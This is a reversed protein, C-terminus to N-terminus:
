FRFVLKGYVGRDVETAVGIFEGRGEPHRDDLLNYGGICAELTESPKWGLRVDVREYGPIDWAPLSNVAYLSVDFELDWPLDLYSRIKFQQEPSQGEQEENVPDGSTPDLHLQIDLASYSASVEWYDTIRVNSSLEAGYTEGDMKNAAIVPIKIYSPPGAMFRLERYQPEYSRLGDYENYFLALDFSLANSVQVRQGIEFGLLTESEFDDDGRGDVYYPPFTPNSPNPDMPNPQNFLNLGVLHHDARSPTRVARSVSAWTTYRPHPTFLLRASPQYELHTFDNYEFKSGFTFKLLDEIIVHSDQIFASFLDLAREDPEFEFYLGRAFDDTHRRYGLGWIIENQSFPSFRHQYDLDFVEYQADVVLDQKREFHEFYTQLEMDSTDSFRKKWRFLLDGGKTDANLLAAPHRYGLGPTFVVSPFEASENSDGEYFDGQFTLDDEATIGWDMRFGGQQFSWDDFADKDSADKFDDIDKYMGYVRYFVNEDIAGGYRFSTGSANTGVTGTTLVGQTDKAHKTIINIVGNVANAGWLTAGPGRIVEIRDIDELLYNQAEWFVGSFVQNYVSRGDVLILLKNSFESGFGRSSVIWINANMNAVFLGPVMRLLEPISTAGSRRIDEKTIVYIASAAQSLKEEKKSVSTVVVDLASLEELDLDAIEELDIDDSSQTLDEAFSGNSCFCFLLLLLGVLVTRHLRQVDMLSKRRTPVIM